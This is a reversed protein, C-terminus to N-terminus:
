RRRLGTGAVPGAPEPVRRALVFVGVTMVAVSVVELARAAAGGALREGFLVVGIGVALLPQVVTLTPLSLRLPGAQFASQTAILAVGGAALLGYLPWTTLAHGIGGALMRGTLATLAATCGLALGAGVALSLAAFRSPARGRALAACAGIGCAVVAGLGLWPRPAAVPHGVGPGAGVLFGALGAAVATAALAEALSVREHGLIASFPLALVLSSVLLPEVVVLSGERLALFQLAYGGADLVNAVVWVPDRVLRAVLGARMSLRAPQRSAARHQLVAAVGYATAASLALLVVVATM